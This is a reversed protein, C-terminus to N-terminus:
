KIVIKWDWIDEIPFHFKQGKNKNVFRTQLRTKQFDTVWIVNLFM